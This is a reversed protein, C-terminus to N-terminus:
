LHDSVFVQFNQNNIVKEGAVQHYQFKKCDYFELICLWFQLRFKELPLWKIFNVLFYRFAENRSRKIFSYSHFAKPWTELKAPFVLLLDWIKEQRLTPGLGHEHKEM